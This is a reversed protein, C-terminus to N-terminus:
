KWVGIARYDFRMIYKGGSKEVRVVTSNVTREQNAAANSEFLGTVGSTFNNNGTILFNFNTNAFNVAFTIKKVAMGSSAAFRDTGWQELKGSKWKVYGNLGDSSISQEVVYDAIGNIWNAVQTLASKLSLM